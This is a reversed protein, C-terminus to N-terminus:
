ARQYRATGRTHGNRLMSELEGLAAKLRADKVMDAMRRGRDSTLAKLLQSPRVNQADFGQDTPLNMVEEVAESNLAAQLAKVDHSSTPTLVVETQDDFITEFTTIILSRNM